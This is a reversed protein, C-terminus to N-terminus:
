PLQLVQGPVLGVGELDNVEVLADVVARPDEEPAMSVAISWLTDGSRVVVSSDGVPQLGGREEGVVSATILLAIGIMTAVCLAAVARRGRRTLRVGPAERGLAGARPGRPVGAARTAPASCGGRVSRVSAIGVGSRVGPRARGRRGGGRRAPQSRCGPPAPVPSAPAPEQPRVPVVRPRGVVGGGLQASAM